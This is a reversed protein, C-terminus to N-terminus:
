TEATTQGPQEAGQAPAGQEPKPQAQDMFQRTSEQAKDVKENLQDVQKDFEKLTEGLSERATEVAAEEVKKTFSEAAQEASDCGALAFLGLGLLLPKVISM